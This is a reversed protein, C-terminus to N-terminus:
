FLTIFNKVNLKFYTESVAYSLYNQRNHQNIDKLETSRLKKTLLYPQDLILLNRAIIITTM